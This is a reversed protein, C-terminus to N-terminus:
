GHAVEPNAPDQVAITEATEDPTIDLYLIRIVGIAVAGGVL